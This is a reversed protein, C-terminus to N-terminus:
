RVNGGELEVETLVAAGPSVVWCAFHVHDWGHDPCPLVIIALFRVFGLSEDALHRSYTALDIESPVVQGEPHTHWEGLWVSGDRAHARDALATAYDLDRLFRNPTRLAAPGPGGAVTVRLDDASEHGLLIGGTENGDRSRQAEDMISEHAAATLSIM